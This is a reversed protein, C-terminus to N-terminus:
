GERHALFAARAAPFTDAWSTEGCSCTVWGRAGAGGANMAMHNMPGLVMDMDIFRGGTGEAEALRNLAAAAEPDSIVNKALGAEILAIWLDRRAVTVEVPLRGDDDDAM